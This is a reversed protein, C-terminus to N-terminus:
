KQQGWGQRIISEYMWTGNGYLDTSIVM